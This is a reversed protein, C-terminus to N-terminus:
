TESTLKFFWLISDGVRHKRQMTFGDFELEKSGRFRQIVILTNPDVLNQKKLNPMIEFITETPFPPDIFIINFNGRIKSVIDPLTGKIITISNLVGLKEANERILQTNRPDKEVYLVSIAGRSLCEFGIAGTGSYLDLIQAGELKPALIDFLSEKVRDSIPRVTNGGKPADFKRGKLQGAIVRLFSYKDSFLM